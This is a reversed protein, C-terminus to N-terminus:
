ASKALFQSITLPGGWYTWGFTAIEKVHKLAQWGYCRNEIVSGCDYLQMRLRVLSDFVPKQSSHLFDLFTRLSQVLYNVDLSRFAFSRQRPALWRGLFIRIVPPRWERAFDERSIKRTLDEPSLKAALEDTINDLESRKKADYYGFFDVWRMTPDLLIHVSREAEWLYCRTRLVLDKHIAIQM